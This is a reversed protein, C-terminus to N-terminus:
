KILQWCQNKYFFRHEGKDWILILGLWHGGRNMSMVRMVKVRLRRMAEDWVRWVCESEGSGNVSVRVTPTAAAWWGRSGEDGFSRSELTISGTARLRMCLCVIMAPSSSKLYLLILFNCLLLFCVRWVCCLCRPIIFYNRIIMINYSQTRGELRYSM